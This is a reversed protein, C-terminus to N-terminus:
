LWLKTNPCNQIQEILHVKHKSIIIDNLAPSKPAQNGDSDSYEQWDSFQCIIPPYYVLYEVVVGGLVIFIIPCIM